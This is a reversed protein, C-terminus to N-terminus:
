GAGVHGEGGRPQAPHALGAEQARQDALGLQAHGVEHVRHEHDLSLVRARRDGRQGADVVQRDVVRHILGALGVPEPHRGHQQEPERGVLVLLAGAGPVVLAHDLKGRARELGGM